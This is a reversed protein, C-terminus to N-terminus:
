SLLDQSSSTHQHRDLHHDLPIKNFRALTGRRTRRSRSRTGKVSPWRVFEDDRARSGDLKSEDHAGRACPEDCDARSGKGREDLGDEGRGEEGGEGKERGGEGWREELDLV